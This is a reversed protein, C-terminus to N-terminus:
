FLKPIFRYKVKQCYEQYEPDKILNREETLARVYYVAVWGALGITLVFKELIGYGTNFYFPITLVTLMLIQMTYDPHRIINYPFKAVIGRNTLNSSKTGLRLVSLMIIFEAVILILGFTIRIYLNEVPVHETTFSPIIRDSIAKLPYYCMICSFIGMPTTDVYKIRNKFFSLESLYSIAMVFATVGLMLTLWMDNSDDLFQLVGAIPGSLQAYQVAQSIVEKLFDFDYGISPLIKTCLIDICYVGFFAQIFFIVFAQKENERPEINKIREEQSINKLFQRKIYSFVAVSRSTLITQPKFKFLIFPAIVIYLFYYIFFFYIYNFTQPDASHNFLPCFTVFLFMFGYILVSAIYHKFIDKKTVEQTM